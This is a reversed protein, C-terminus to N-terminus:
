NARRVLDKATRYAFLMVILLVDIAIVMCNGKPQTIIVSVWVVISAFAFLYTVIRRIPQSKGVRPLRTGILDWLTYLIFSVAVVTTTPVATAVRITRGPDNGIFRAPILWYDVVLAIDIAFLALPWNWFRIKEESRFRSNHYGIWSGLTLIAGVCLHSWDVASLHKAAIVDLYKGVAVAFLLDVFTLSAPVSPSPKTATDTVHGDDCWMPM